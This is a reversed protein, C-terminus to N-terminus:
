GSHTFKGGAHFNESIYLEKEGTESAIQHRVRRCGDLGQHLLASNGRQRAIDLRSNENRTDEKWITDRPKHSIRRNEKLTLADQFNDKEPANEDTLSKTANRLM